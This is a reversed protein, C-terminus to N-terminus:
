WIEDAGRGRQVCRLWRRRWVQGEARVFVFVRREEGSGAQSVVGMILGRKLSSPMKASAGCVAGFWTRM